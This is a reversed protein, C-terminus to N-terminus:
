SPGLLRSSGDESSQPMSLIEQMYRLLQGAHLVALRPGVHAMEGFKSWRHPKLLHYVVEFRKDREPYDVGCVDLLYPFKKQIDRAVDLVNGHNVYITDEDSHRENKVYEIGAQPFKSKLDQSLSDIYRTQGSSDTM